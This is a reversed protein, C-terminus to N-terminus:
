SPSPSTKDDLMLVEKQALIAQRGTCVQQPHPQCTTLHWLHLHSNHTETLELFWTPIGQQTDTNQLILLDNAPIPSDKEGQIQHETFTGQTRMVRQNWHQSSPTAAGAKSLTTEAGTRPPPLHRFGASNSWTAGPSFSTGPFSLSFSPKVM